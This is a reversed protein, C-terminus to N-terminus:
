AKRENKNGILELAQLIATEPTPGQGMYGTEKVRIIVRYGSETRWIRKGRNM